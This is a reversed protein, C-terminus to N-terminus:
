LRKAAIALRGKNRGGAPQELLSSRLIEFGSKLLLRETEEPPHADYSFEVDWMTDTFPANASGGSTLLFVAGPRLFDAVHEFL